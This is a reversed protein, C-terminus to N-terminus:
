SGVIEGLLVFQSFFEWLNLCRSLQVVVSHPLDNVKSHDPHKCFHTAYIKCSPVSCTGRYKRGNRSLFRSYQGNGRRPCYIVLHVDTDSSLYPESSEQESSWSEVSDSGDGAEIEDHEVVEAQVVEPQVDQDVLTEQAPQMEHDGHETQHDMEHEDSHVTELPPLDQHSPIPPAPLETLGPPLSEPPM